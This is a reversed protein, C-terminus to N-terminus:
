MYVSGLIFRSDPSKVFNYIPWSAKIGKANSDRPHENYKRETSPKYYKGLSSLHKACILDESNLPVKIRMCMLECETILIDANSVNGVREQLKNLKVCKLKCHLKCMYDLEVPM